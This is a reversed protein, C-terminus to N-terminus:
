TILIERICDAMYDIAAETLRPHMPLTVYREFAEECVPCEGSRHGQSLYPNTLHIPMYHSWAKIGKETYMKWMFDEKSIPADKTLQIMYLHWVHVGNPNDYPLIIGSM